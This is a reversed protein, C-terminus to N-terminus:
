QGAPAGRIAKGAARIQKAAPTALLGTFAESQSCRWRELTIRSPQVAKSPPKPPVIM